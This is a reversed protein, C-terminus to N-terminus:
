TLSALDEPTDLDKTVTLPAPVQALDLACLARRVSLDRAGDLADIASVLSALRYHAALYQPWGDEDRLVVGDPGPQAEALRAVVAEPAALDGALLLVETCLDTHVRLRPATSVGDAASLTACPDVASPSAAVLSAVAAAIGAVPGGYPPDELTFRVRPDAKWAVPEPAVVMVDDSWGLAADVTRRLLTRGELVVGMKDRGMRQSRGGGLVIAHRVIAGTERASVEAGTVGSGTQLSIPDDAQNM